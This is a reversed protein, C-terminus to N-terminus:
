RRDCAHQQTSKFNKESRIVKEAKINLLHLQAIIDDINQSYKQMESKTKNIKTITKKM